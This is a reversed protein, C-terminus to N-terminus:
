NSPNAKRYDNQTQLGNIANEGAAVDKSLLWHYVHQTGGMPNAQSIVYAAEFKWGLGAMFNMADVMSNFVMPKGSEDVLRNRHASGGLANKRMADEQGFDIAVTVENQKLGKATGVIQCYFKQTQAFTSSCFLAFFVVLLLKKM